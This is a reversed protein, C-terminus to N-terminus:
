RQAQPARRRRPPEEAAAPARTTAAAFVEFYLQEDLRARDRQAAATLLEAALMMLVRHNGAAHDALTTILADTMLRRNGAAELVHHLCAALQAAPAAELALRVRIRSGLPLLDDRRFTATLRADGALVVTLLLRSDLEVSSLLRLENLVPPPMEQAEDVILVPRSLATEVHAQWRERLVKTGAWRHHPSLAVGYLDGLERYFDALGSQPRTLIGLQVDRLGALRDALVRLAVSKGTGPEGTVLAFGGERALHHEVRWCFREVPPTVYLAEVPVQPSFPNWKLGHPALLKKNM